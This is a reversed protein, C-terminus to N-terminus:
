FPRSYLWKIRRADPLRELMSNGNVMQPKICAHEIAHTFSTASNRPKKNFM